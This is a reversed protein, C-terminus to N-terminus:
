VGVSSHYVKLRVPKISRQSLDLYYEGELGDNRINATDSTDSSVMFTGFNISDVEGKCLTIVVQYFTVICLLLL